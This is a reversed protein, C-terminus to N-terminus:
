GLLLSKTKKYIEEYKMVYKEHPVFCNVIHENRFMFESDNTFDGLYPIYEMQSNNISLFYPDEIVVYNNGAEKLNGIIIQGTTIYLCIIDLKDNKKENNEM